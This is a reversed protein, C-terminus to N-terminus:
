CPHSIAGQVRKQEIATLHSGSREQPNRAAGHSCDLRSTTMRPPLLSDLCSVSAGLRHVLAFSALMITHVAHWRAASTLSVM